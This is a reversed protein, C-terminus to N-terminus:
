PVAFAATDAVSALNHAPNFYTREQGTSTDTVTITYEVDSLAGYFVWYHGNLARGDLVKLILEVNASDFFWFYGTDGTLTVAQGVGTSGDNYNRWAVRVRFRSNNLCLDTATPTCALVKGGAGTLEGWVTARDLVVGDAPGSATLVKYDHPPPAAASGPLAGTDAVSALNRAPNFYTVSGGTQTDTVTITYEVDSLAGYFVWYSDNLWTGDLVKVVLEVNASNFFWFHGTDATIPVAHGLGTSDDNYNRWAVQVQFRSENLCLTHAGATCTSPATSVEFPRYVVTRGTPSTKTYCVTVRDTGDVTVQPTEPVAGGEPRAVEFDPGLPVGDATFFRGFISKGGSPGSEWAVAFDGAANMAVSPKVQNGASTANVKVQAGMPLGGSGVRRAWIDFGEGVGVDQMWVVVSNGGADTAVVPNMPDGTPETDIPVPDGQPVGSPDFLRGFIGDGGQQSKDPARQHWVVQFSGAASAAVSPLSVSTAGGADVRTAGGTPQGGPNFFRGYVGEGQKGASQRWAAMFRGSASSAVKPAGVQAGTGEDLQFSGGQPQQDAGFVRGFVGGAGATKEWGVVFGGEANFTVSPQTVESGSSTDVPFPQSSSGDAGFFRGFVGDGQTIGGVKGMTQKWVIVRNGFRDTASGIAVGVTAGPPSAQTEDGPTVTGGAAVTVTASSSASGFPNTATLSVTYPGAEAFVHWPHQQSSTAGDGFSWQWSTPAGTSTDTFHVEEGAVPDPPSWTFAAVPPSGVTVTASESDSGDLNAVTLTVTYTGAAAYAHTPSQLASSAGDGFSWSWSTPDGTSRDTFSVTQGVAPTTPAWTFAAVPAQSEVVTVFRNESDSGCGNNTTLTVLYQGPAAYAYTPHQETSVSGDGFSWWWFTPGGTSQDTFSVTQGVGPTTPTWTFHTVPPPCTTTVTVDDLAFGVSYYESHLELRFTHNAGDAFASVDTVVEAYGGLFRPDDGGLYALQQGDIRLTVGDSPLSSGEHSLWFRATAGVGAPITLSQSVWCDLPMPMPYSTCAVWCSGTRPGSRPCQIAGSPGGEDWHPNPSGLEFSPDQVLQDARAEPPAWGFWAVILAVALAIRGPGAACSSM